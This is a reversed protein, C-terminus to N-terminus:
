ISRGVDQEAVGFGVGGLCGRGRRRTARAACRAGVLPEDVTAAGGVVDACCAALLYAALLADHIAIRGGIFSFSKSKKKKYLFIIIYLTCSTFLLIVPATKNQIARKQKGKRDDFVKKGNIV